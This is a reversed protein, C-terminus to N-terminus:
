NHNPVLGGTPMATGTTGALLGGTPATGTPNFLGGPAGGGLGGFTGTAPPNGAPKPGFLSSTGAAPTTGLGLGGM